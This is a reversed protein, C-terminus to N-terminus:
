CTEYLITKSDAAAARPPTRSAKGKTQPSNPSFLGRVRGQGLLARELPCRSSISDLCRGLPFTAATPLRPLLRATISPSPAFSYFCKDVSRARQRPQVTQCERPTEDSGSRGAPFPPTGQGTAPQVCSRARAARSPPGRGAKLGSSGIRSGACEQQRPAVWACAALSSCSEDALLLRPTWVLRIRTGQLAFHLSQGQGKAEPYRSKGTGVLRCALADLRWGACRFTQLKAQSAPGERGPVARGSHGAGSCAM